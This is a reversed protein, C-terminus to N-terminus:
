CDGSCLDPFYSASAVRFSALARLLSSLKELREAGGFNSLVEATSMSAFLAVDDSVAWRGTREIRVPSTLTSDFDFFVARM